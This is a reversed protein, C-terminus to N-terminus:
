PEFFYLTRRAEWRTPRRLVRRSEDWIHKAILAKEHSDGCKLAATQTLRLILRNYRRCLDDQDGATNRVDLSGCDFGDGKGEKLLVKMSDTKKQVESLPTAYIGKAKSQAEKVMGQLEAIYERLEAHSSEEKVLYNNMEDFFSGYQDVRGRIERIFEYLHTALDVGVTPKEGQKIKSLRTTTACVPRDYMFKDPTSYKLKRLQNADFDLLEAAKDSGLAQELIECPSFLDAAAPRLFYIIAEGNPVFTKEFHFVARQGDFFFPYHNWDEFWVGWMRTKAYAIPFSYEMNPTRFSPRGGTTVFFHSTWNAPFPSQWSIPVYESLWDEKLPEEHWLNDHEVLSLWFGSESTDISLSDIIRRKGQGSLGVSVAQSDKEWVAVLMNDRGEGLGVFWQTSPINFEPGGEMKAPAYCIDTGVFSPLLGYRLQCNKVRFKSVQTPEIRLLGKSTFWATYAHDGNKSSVRLGTREKERVLTCKASPLAPSPVIVCRAKLGAPQIGYLLLAGDSSRVSGVLNRAQVVPTESFLHSSEEVKSWGKKGPWDLMQGSEQKLEWVSLPPLSDPFKPEYRFLEFDDAVIAAGMEGSVGHYLRFEKSLGGLTLSLTGPRDLDCFAQVQVWQGRSVKTEACTYVAWPRNPDQILFTVPQDAQSKVWCRAVYAGAQLAETRQEIASNPPIAIACQGAHVEGDTISIKGSSDARTTWNPPAGMSAGKEEFGPNKILNEQATATQLLWVCTM